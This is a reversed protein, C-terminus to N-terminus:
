ARIVSRYFTLVSHCFMMVFCCFQVVSCSFQIKVRIVGWLKTVFESIDCVDTSLKSVGARQQPFGNECFMSRKLANLVKNLTGPDSRSSPSKGEM